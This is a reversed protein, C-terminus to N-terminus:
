HYHCNPADCEPCYVVPSAEESCYPCEQYEETDGLWLDLGCALCHHSPEPDVTTVPEHFDISM